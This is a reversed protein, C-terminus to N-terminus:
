PFLRPYIEEELEEDYRKILKKVASEAKKSAILKEKKTFPMDKPVDWYEKQCKLMTKVAEVLDNLYLKTNDIPPM